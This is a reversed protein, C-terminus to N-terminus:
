QAEATLLPTIRRVTVRRNEREPAETQVKLYQEGYGETVLNEPPIEFNQSLAVAVAEARADSLLLNDEDSGVADTHGEILYVEDPNEAIVEEMALGLEELANMQDEEITASGFEFTITDLDIRRMKDRVRVNTTVEEVSYAREVREVPPAVLVEQIEQAPAESYEVIYEQQPITVQLPPLEVPEYVVPPPGEVFVNNVLIIERGAPTRRVRRIIRGFDDRDTIIRVGNPRVVITRTIRNPLYEVLVDEAGYLLREEVEFEDASRVVIRGGGLDVVIRDGRRELIRGEFRDERREARDERREQADERNEQRDEQREERRAERARERQERLKERLRRVRDAERRDGQAELQKETTSEGTGGAAPPTEVPLTRPAEPQERRQRLREARRRARERARDERTGQQAEDGTPMQININNEIAQNQQNQNQNQNDNQTEVNTDNQTEVDTDNQNNNQNQQQQQQRQQQRPRQRAEIRRRHAPTLEPTGQEAAPQEPEAAPEGAPAETAPAGQQQQQQQQQRQERRQQRERRRRQQPTLEEAAGEAAPAAPEAAPAAPEPAGQQQQQQQQQRRERREQRERRRRQQPTLEEAGGEAAPAAPAAPEAAPAAPQEAAPEAPQEAAPAGQQQQQQQQRRQQRRERRQQRRCEAASLGEACEAAEGEAQALVLPQEAVAISDFALAPYSLAVPLVAGALLLSRIRM